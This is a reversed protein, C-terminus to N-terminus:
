KKNPIPNACAANQLAQLEAPTLPRFGSQPLEPPLRLPGFAARHLQLVSHGRAAFMRKVQHFKGEALWVIAHSALPSASLIQMKAPLATFDSLIVGEQFAAIDADTLNGEVQVHYEKFVHRKPSLLRHALEGDNTLLLIGTTDKDLRGVPLVNRRILAGPVLSMVTQARSDRAATLVGPPKHLLYYQLSVDEVPQGQLTINQRSPDVKCAADRQTIGDVQVLGGRLLRAAESRSYEGSQSLLKDLRVAGM